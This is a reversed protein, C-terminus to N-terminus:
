QPPPLMLLVVTPSPSALCQCYCSAIGVVLWIVYPAPIGNESILSLLLCSLLCDLLLQSWQPVHHGKLLALSSPFPLLRDHSKRGSALGLDLCSPLPGHALMWRPRNLQAWPLPPCHFYKAPKGGRRILLHQRYSHLYKGKKKQKALSGVNQKREGSYEGEAIKSREVKM